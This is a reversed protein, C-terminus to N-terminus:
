LDFQPVDGITAQIRARGLIQGFRACLGAGVLLM